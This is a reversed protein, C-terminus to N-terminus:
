GGPAGTVGRSGLREGNVTASAKVRAGPALGTFEARGADNTKASLPSPGGTLEVVQGPIVNAMSGRVVRVTVTGPALDGVPLPIGPMHKAEPRQVGPVQALAVARTWAGRATRSDGPTSKRM